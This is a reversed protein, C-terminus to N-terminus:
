HAGPGYKTAAATNSGNGKSERTRGAWVVVGLVVLLIAIGILLHM